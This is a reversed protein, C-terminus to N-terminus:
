DEPPEECLSAGKQIAKGLEEATASIPLRIDREPLPLFNNRRDRASPCVTYFAGDSEVSVSKAGAALARWSKVGAATLLPELLKKWDTPHPVPGTSAALLEILTAGLVAAPADPPIKVIPEVGIWAGATTKNYPSCYWADPRLLAESNKM